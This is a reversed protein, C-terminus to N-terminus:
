GKRTAAFALTAWGAMLAIGGAPASGQFPVDGTLGYFYTSGSFFVMGIVFLGGARGAWTASATGHRADTLWAIGLLALTHWMQYQVGTNFVDREISDAALGHWGYSGALVALGGSISAILLWRNSPTM